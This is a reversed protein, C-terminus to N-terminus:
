RYNASQGAAERFIGLLREASSTWSFQAARAFGRERLDERLGPETLIRRMADTLEEDSGPRVFLAAGQAVEVCAPATSTIVPAGAAMAEVLPIGFSESFSPFVLASCMSYLAPMEDFPVFGPLVVAAHDVAHDTLRHLRERVGPGVIVLPPATPIEQRLRAHARIMGSVNKRDNLRSGREDHRAYGKVVGLFFPGRPLGHRERVSALRSADEVPRFTEDAAAHVTRMKGPPIGIAETLERALTDSNTMVLRARRCYLPIMLRSYLRNVTDHEEPMTWYEAGRQQCVTACSALLPITFKHHFLVDLRERRAALPLQLQDWILRKRGPVVRERVNPIGAWRGAQTADSYFLVYENVSDLEFLATLLARIYVGAGDREDVARLMIGIRLPRETPRVFSRDQPRMEM